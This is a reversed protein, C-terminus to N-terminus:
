LLTQIQQMERWLPRRRQRVRPRVNYSLALTSHQRKCNPPQVTCMAAMHLPSLLIMAMNAAVTLTIMVAGSGYALHPLETHEKM